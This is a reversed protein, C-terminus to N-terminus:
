LLKIIKGKNLIYELLQESPHSQCSPNNPNQRNNLNNGPNPSISVNRDQKNQPNSLEEQLEILKNNVRWKKFAKDMLNRRIFTFASNHM